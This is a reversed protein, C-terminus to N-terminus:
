FTDWKASQCCWQLEQQAQPSDDKEVEAVEKSSSTEIREEMEELIAKGAGTLM